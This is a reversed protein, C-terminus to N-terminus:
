LSDFADFARQVVPSQETNAEADEGVLVAEDETEGDTDGDVEDTQAAQQEVPAKDVVIKTSAPADKGAPITKSKDAKAKVTSAAKTLLASIDLSSYTIAATIVGESLQAIANDVLAPLEEPTGIVCLPSTMASRLNIVEQANNNIEGNKHDDMLKQDLADSQNFALMVSLRVGDDMLKVHCEVGKLKADNLVKFLAAFM